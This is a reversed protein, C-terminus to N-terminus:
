RGSASLRGACARYSFAGLAPPRSGVIRRRPPSEGSGAHCRGRSQTARAETPILGKQAAERGETDPGPCSLKGRAGQREPRQFLHGDPARPLRFVCRPYPGQPGGRHQAGCVHGGGDARGAESLSATRGAAGPGRRLCTCYTPGRRGADSRRAVGRHVRGARASDRDLGQQLRLRLRFVCSPFTFAGEPTLRPTHAETFVHDTCM